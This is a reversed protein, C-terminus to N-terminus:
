CNTTLSRPSAEFWRLWGEDTTRWNGDAIRWDESDEVEREPPTITAALTKPARTSLRAPELGAGLMAIAGWRRRVHANDDDAAAEPSQTGRDPEAGRAVIDGDDVLLFLGAPDCLDVALVAEREIGSRWDDHRGPQDLLQEIERPLAGGAVDRQDRELREVGDPELIARHEVVRPECLRERALKPTEIRRVDAARDRQTGGGGPEKVRCKRQGAARERAGGIGGRRETGQQAIAGVPWDSRQDICVDGVGAEAADEADVREEDTAVRRARGADVRRELRELLSPTHPVRHAAGTGEHPGECLHEGLHAADEAEGVFCHLDDDGCGSTAGGTHAERVALHQGGARDHAIGLHPGGVKAQHGGSHARDFRVRADEAARIRPGEEHPAEARIASVGAERVVLDQHTLTLSAQAGIGGGLRVERVVEREVQM